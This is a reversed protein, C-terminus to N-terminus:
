VTPLVHTIHNNVIKSSKLPVEHQFFLVM